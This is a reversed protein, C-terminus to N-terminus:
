NIPFVTQFVSVLTPFENQFEWGEFDFFYPSVLTYKYELISGNQVNPFTFKLAKRGRSKEIKYYSDDKVVNQLIGNHTIAKYDLVEEEYFGNGVYYPIEVTYDGFKAVDFVKIKRHIEKVLRFATKKVISVAYYNGSEYLVVGAAEPESEYSNIEFDKATPKGFEINIDSQSFTVNAFLVFVFVSIKKIPM